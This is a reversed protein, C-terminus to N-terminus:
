TKVRRFVSRKPQDGRGPPALEITDADILHILLTEEPPEEGPVTIQLRIQNGKREAVKWQGQVQRQQGFTNLDLTMTGDSRFELEMSMQDAMKQALERMLQAQAGQQGEGVRDVEGQLDLRWRGVLASSGSDHLCGSTAPPVFLVLICCVKKWVRPAM